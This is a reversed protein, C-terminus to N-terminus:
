QEFRDGLTVSIQKPEGSRVLSLTVSDGVRQESFIGHLRALRAIPKGAIETVIDGLMLGARAAPGKNQLHVILLGHHAESKLKAIIDDPLSVAQLAVGLYPQAIHGKALLEDVVRTVTSTPVAIPAGRRLGTTNMGVVEGKTNVLPGGSYGRYLTIDPRIFRDIHGGRWTQWGDMLGSIIGSSATLNGRRTRALALVFHGVRLLGADGRVAPPEDKSEITFIALDTSPDRGKIRAGASKGGPLLATVADQPASHNATVVVGQQWMVGSTAHTENAQLAVVFQGAAETVLALEDSFDAWIARGPSGM